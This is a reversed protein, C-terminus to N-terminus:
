NIEIAYMESSNGGALGFIYEIAMTHRTILFFSEGWKACGNCLDM